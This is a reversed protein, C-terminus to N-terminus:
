CQRSRDKSLPRGQIYEQALYFQQDQEFHALLQPIQAHHGLHYLVQAETDFLRRAVQLARSDTVYPQLKKVVVQPQTPLHTDESLYTRGYGGSGLQRLIRYRGGLLSDSDNM